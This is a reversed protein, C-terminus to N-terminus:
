KAVCFHQIAVEDNSVGIGTLTYEPNLIAEKHPPSNMWGNFATQSDYNDGHKVKVYALNESSSSCLPEVYSYMEATLTADPDEPLFHSRYNRTIMDDAKLQASKNLNDNMVLPEVGAKAREANVLELIEQPDIPGVEYKTLEPEKIGASKHTFVVVMGVTALAILLAGAILLIKARKTM